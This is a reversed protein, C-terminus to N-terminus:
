AKPAVGTEIMTLIRDGRDEKGGPGDGVQHIWKSTVLERKAGSFDDVRMCELFRPFGLLGDIGMNFCLNILARQRVLDKKAFWPLRSLLEGVTTAIDNELLYMREAPTLPRANLNRGVGITVNGRVTSGAKITKGTADDYPDGRDGEDRMLDDVIAQYDAPSM